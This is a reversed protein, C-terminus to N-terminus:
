DKKTALKSMRGRISTTKAPEPNQSNGTETAPRRQRGKRTKEVKKEVKVKFIWTGELKMKRRTTNGVSVSPEELTSLVTYKSNIKGIVDELTLVKIPDTLFKNKVCEIKVTLEDGDLTENINKIM